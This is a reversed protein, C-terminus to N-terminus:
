LVVVTGVTLTKGNNKVVLDKAYEHKKGKGAYLAAISAYSEGDKVVHTKKQAVKPEVKETEVKEIQELYEDPLDEMEAALSAMKAM